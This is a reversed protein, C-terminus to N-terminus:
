ARLGCITTIIPGLGRNELPYCVAPVAHIIPAVSETRIKYPIMGANEVPRWKSTQEDFYELRHTKEPDIKM